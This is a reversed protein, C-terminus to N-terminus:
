CNKNEWTLWPYEQGECISWNGDTTSWKSGSINEWTGWSSIPANLQSYFYLPESNGINKASCGTNGDPYCNSQTSKYSDWYSNTVSSGGGMEGVIAGHQNSDGGSYTGVIIRGAFFSNAINNKLDGYLGGYYYPSSFSGAMNIDMTSYSKSITIGPNERLHGGVLGGFDLFSNRWYYPTNIKGKSYVNTLSSGWGIGVIGGVETVGAVANINGDFYSNMISGLQLSGVLGGADMSANDALMGVNIDAKAYSNRIILNGSSMGVLGGVMYDKCYIYGSFHSSEILLNKSSGFGVLGGIYYSSVYYNSSGSVSGQVSSNIISFSGTLSGVLAGTRNKGSINVDTLSINRVFGGNVDSILGIKDTSLRNIFLGSVTYNAGDLSGTFTSALGIPSFGAGSNWLTGGLHTDSYCNIDDMLIYNGTLDSNM